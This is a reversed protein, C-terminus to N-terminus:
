TITQNESIVSKYVAAAASSQCARYKVSLKQIDQCRWKVQHSFPEILNRFWAFYPCGVHILDLSVSIYKATLLAYISLM